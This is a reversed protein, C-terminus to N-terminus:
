MFKSWIASKRSIASVTWTYTKEMRSFARPRAGPRKRTGRPAPYALRM